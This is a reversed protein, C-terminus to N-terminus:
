PKKVSVFNISNNYALLLDTLDTLSDGTLDTIVYGSLFENADNYIQIVDTLDVAEDRNVDGSYIGYRLPSSDIEAMNSGYANLINGAYKKSAGGTFYSFSIPTSSWVSISNRHVAEIYYEKGLEVDNFTLYSLNNAPMYLRKSEVINFPAVSKRINYIITDRVTSNTNADYMGQIFISTELYKPKTTKNNFRIGWAYLRGTDLGAQDYVTLKWEGRTNGNLSNILSWNSKLAPSFTAYHNFFATDANDEFITVLNNDAGSTGTNDFLLAYDGNPANLVINLNSMNEHNLAVFVEVNTIPENEYVDIIDEIVGIDNVFPIRLNRFSMYFAETFFKGDKRILPSVPQGTITAPHSFRANNRFNLNQGQGTNSINSGDLNYSVDDSPSENSKDVSRFINERIEESTKAKETIRVEDIYGNFDNMAITGGIYMSDSSSSILGINNVDEKIIKGNLYFLYKGTIYDYTFAVHSWQNTKITDASTFNFNQKLGAVLTQNQIALRFNTVAGNDSGKHIIICNSNSRPYIWAEMTIEAVPSIATNGPTSLYDNIGDLEVSENYTVTTSLNSSLNFVTVGRNYCNNGTGSYDDTSFNVGTSEPKQLPLSLILGNYIGSNISLSTRFYQGIEAGSLARNWIRIDDLKGSFAGALGRGFGILISDNNLSPPAAVVASTDLVGNIFLSFTNTITNYRGAAHTWKNNPIVTRGTIGWLNGTNFFIRGNILIMAYGTNFSSSSRKQLIVQTFPSTSNDPNIWCEVTFSGTLDLSADDEISIHTSDSGTFNGAKNWFMQANTQNTIFLITCIM